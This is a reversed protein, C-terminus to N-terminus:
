TAQRWVTRRLGSTSSMAWATFCSHSEAGGRGATGRNPGTGSEARMSHATESFRLRLVEDHVKTVTTFLLLGTKKVPEASWQSDEAYVSKRACLWTWWSHLGDLLQRQKAIVRPSSSPKFMLEGKPCGRPVLCATTLKGRPIGTFDGSHLLYM